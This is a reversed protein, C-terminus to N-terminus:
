LAVLSPIRPPRLQHNQTPTAPNMIADKKLGFHRLPAARRGRAYNRGIAAVLVAEAKLAAVVPM